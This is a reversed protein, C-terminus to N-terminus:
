TCILSKHEFVLAAVYIVGNRFSPGCDPLFLLDPQPLGLFEHHDSLHLCGRDVLVRVLIRTLAISDRYDLHCEDPCRFRRMDAVDRFHICVASTMAVLRDWNAHKAHFEEELHWRVGSSPLRLFVVNGGRNKLRQVNTDIQKIDERLSNWEPFRHSMYSRHMEETNRRALQEIDAVESFDWQCERSFRRRVHPARENRLGYCLRALVSRIGVNNQVAVFTDCLWGRAITDAYTAARAPRYQRCVRHGDWSSRELLPTDVECVVIGTFRPDDALDALLGIPSETGSIGLQVFRYGPLLCELTEISIDAAIRSSGLFVVVKGDSRYVRQRWFHWLDMSGSVNPLYGHGRLNLELAGVSCASFALALLIVRRWRLCPARSFTALSGLASQASPM